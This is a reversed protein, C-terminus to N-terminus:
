KKGPIGVDDLRQADIVNGLWEDLMALDRTREISAV